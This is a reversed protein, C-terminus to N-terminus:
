GQPTTLRAIVAQAAAPARVKAGNIMYLYVDRPAATKPPALEALGDPQSGASWARAAVTWRDLAAPPYGAPEAEEAGTLRAYAFDATREALGLFTDSYVIAAGADRCLDVFRPDAFSEHRGEIAHRLPVGQWKAPLLKLFAAFDEAEFKKAQQFQWLIPGLRDGLELLGQDLFREIGEGADALVKRVTCFRSAKLSFQFGEPVSAAWKRFSEPKQRGYFTANIEIGTVHQGAYELERAQPLKDPYFVGRWPAYTWGGIGVRIRGARDSDVAM